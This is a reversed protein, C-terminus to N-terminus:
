LIGHNWDGGVLEERKLFHPSRQAASGWAIDRVQRLSMEVQALMVDVVRVTWQGGWTLM